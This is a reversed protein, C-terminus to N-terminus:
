LGMQWRRSSGEPVTNGIPIYVRGCEVCVYHENHVVKGVLIPDPKKCRCQGSVVVHGHPIAALEDQRKKLAGYAEDLTLQRGTKQCIDAYIRWDMLELAKGKTHCKEPHLVMGCGSCLNYGIGLEINVGGAIAARFIDGAHFLLTSRKTHSDWHCNCWGKVGRETLPLDICRFKKLRGCAACKIQKQQVNRKFDTMQGFADATYKGCSKCYEGLPPQVSKKPPSKPEQRPKAKKPKAKSQKEPKKPSDPWDDITYDGPPPEKAKPAPKEEPVIFHSTDIDFKSKELEKEFNYPTKNYAGPGSKPKGSYSIGAASLAAFCCLVALMWAPCGMRKTM